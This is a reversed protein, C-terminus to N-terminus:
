ARFYLTPRVQSQEDGSEIKKFVDRSGESKVDSITPVASISGRPLVSASSLSRRRPGLRLEAAHRLNKRLMEKMELSTTM